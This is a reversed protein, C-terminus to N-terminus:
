EVGVSGDALGIFDGDDKTAFDGLVIPALQLSFDLVHVQGIGHDAAM